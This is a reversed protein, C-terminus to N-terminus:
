KFFFYYYDFFSTCEAPFLRDARAKVRQRGTSAGWLCARALYTETRGLILVPVPVALVKWCLSRSGDNGGEKEKVYNCRQPM